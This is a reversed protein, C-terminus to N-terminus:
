STNKLVTCPSLKREAGVAMSIPARDREVLAYVTFRASRIAVIKFRMLTHNPSSGSWSGVGLVRIGLFTWHGCERTRANSALVLRTLRALKV